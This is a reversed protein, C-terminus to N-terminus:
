NTEVLIDEAGCQASAIEAATCGSGLPAEYAYRAMDTSVFTATGDAIQTADRLLITYSLFPLEVEIQAQVRVIQYPQRFNTGDDEVTVWWNLIVEDPEIGVRDAVLTQAMDVFHEKPSIFIDGSPGTVEDAPARSLLRTADSVASDLAERVILSRGYEATICMVGVLLPVSLVFELAASGREDRAFARLGEGIISQICM